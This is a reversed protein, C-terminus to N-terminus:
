HPNVLVWILGQGAELKELALGVVSASEAVRVGQVEVIQVARAHGPSDDATLRMGPEIPATTASAKVQALGYIIINVYEGPQAPGERPVLREIIEGEVGVDHKDLEARGAVVGIVADPGTALDVQMVVPTGQLDTQTVGRVAVVDGPELATQGANRGFDAIACGTCTGTIRVNGAFYGAYNRASIVDVGDNGANWVMVGSDDSRGVWLGLGWAGAVEFGNKAPSAIANSPSGASGVYVGDEGASNIYVGDHGASEVHVGDQGPSLAKLGNRVPRDVYVGDQGPSLVYVGDTGASDVRVGRDGPSRVYLGFRGAAYVGFGDNGASEVRVGDDNANGIHVGDGGGATQVEVGDGGATRVWLGDGGASKVSLGDRGASEVLVGDQGASVVFVGEDGASDVQVGDDGASHIRIGDGLQMLGAPGGTHENSLVLPADGFSGSITLPNTGTWTEGAHSHTASAFANAHQGDLLNADLAYPTATLAQRPTLTTYAGTSTGQRVGIGLWRADGTFAGGGFDLEVTFLGNTVAVDGKSVTSGVQSGGSATNYLKFQFDYAGNAASGGDNLRGQYTFSTSVPAAQIGADGQPGPGQALSLGAALALMLGLALVSILIPRGKM